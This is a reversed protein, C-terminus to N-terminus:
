PYALPEMRQLFDKNIVPNHLEAITSMCAAAPDGSASLLGLWYENGPFSNSDWAYSLVLLQDAKDEPLRRAPNRNSFLVDIGHTRAAERMRTRVSRTVDIWAFELTGLTTMSAGREQVVQAFTDVYLQAQKDSVRWVGLGLGVIHLYAKKDVDGARRNAEWLLMEATIRIRAQYAVENFTTDPATPEIGLFEQWIGLLEPHMRPNAVPPLVYTSEMRDPREFRAGVLGIIVGREEFTGAQGRRARNHRDGDNVFYTPGSVGVLASLMMEDYSLYDELRLKENRVEEPTGVRDWAKAANDIETGDRLKTTDEHTFFALPRKEVLRIIMTRWSHSMYLFREVDSGHRIKHDLFSQVLSPFSHHVIISTANADSRVVDPDFNVISNNETPLFQRIEAVRAVDQKTIDAVRQHGAMMHFFSNTQQAKSLILSATSHATSLESSTDATAFSVPHSTTTAKLTLQHSNKPARTGKTPAQISKHYNAKNPHLCTSAQM